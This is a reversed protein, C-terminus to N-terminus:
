GLHIPYYQELLAGMAVVYDDNGKAATFQVGVPLASQQRWIPFSLAPSQTLNFAPTFPNWSMWDEEDQGSPTNRGAKFPLIPLTPLM